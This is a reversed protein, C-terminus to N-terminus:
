LLHKGKKYPQYKRKQQKLKKDETGNLLDIIDDSEQKNETIDM